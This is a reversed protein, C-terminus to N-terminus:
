FYIGDVGEETIKIHSNLRKDERFSDLLKVIDKGHKGSQMRAHADALRGAGDTIYPNAGLRLLHRVMELHDCQAAYMLGTLGSDPQEHFIQYDINGGHKLLVDVCRFQNKGWHCTAIWLTRTEYAFDPSDLHSLAHSLERYKGKRASQYAERRWHREAIILKTELMGRKGTMLEVIEEHRGFEAFNIALYGQVNFVNQKAGHELLFHVVDLYGRQCARMLANEQRHNMVHLDAGRDILLRVLEIPSAKSYQFFIVHMLPTNGHDDSCNIDAGNDLLKNIVRPQRKKSAEILKQNFDM